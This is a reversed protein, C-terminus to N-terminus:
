RVRKITFGNWGRKKIIRPLLPAIMKWTRQTVIVQSHGNVSTTVVFLPPKQVPVSRVERVHMCSYILSRPRTHIGVRDGVNGDVTKISHATWDLIMAYHGTGINFCVGDGPKCNDLTRDWNNRKAWKAMDYAGATKYPLPRGVEAWSSLFFDVCWAYGGGALFDHQQYFEVRPGRNSHAPIEHVGNRAEHLAWAVARAHATM